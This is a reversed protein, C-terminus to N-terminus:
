NVPGPRSKGRRVRKEPKALGRSSRAGGAVHQLHIRLSASGHGQDPDGLGGIEIEIWRGGRIEVCMDLTM